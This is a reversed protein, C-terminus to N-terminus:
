KDNLSYVIERRSARWAPILSSLLNLALCVLLAIGFVPLNLLMSPSLAVDVGDPPVSGYSLGIEMIWNRGLLIILYSFLLGAMGGLFTFLFNESVVQWMLTGVPAGFARRVGMEAMRREMRSETMGSLSVAPVLLLLLFVIGYQWLLKTFDPQHNGRMRFISQWQRDPQGVVSFESGALSQAYKNVNEVAERRTKEVDKASAALIYAEMNGLTNHQGFSKEKYNEFISYPIYLQGYVRETVFSADKVVGCVRYPRFDLNVDRGVADAEGFLQKALSEAIVATAMGSRFDAETFPKGETFRFPFVTWFQTDVYKLVVPLQENSGDAQVYNDAYNRSIATVTEVSELNMFCAEITKWALGSSSWGGEGYREMGSKVVLLRDRNTEPYINAIKIYFVISFVMVITISLGTGLIYISSFLREQRILNWAQKFYQIM